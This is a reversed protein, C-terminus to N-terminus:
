INRHLYTTEKSRYRRCCVAIVTMQECGYSMYLALGVIFIETCM